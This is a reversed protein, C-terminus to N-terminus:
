RLSDPLALASASSGEIVWDEFSYFRKGGFDLCLEFGKEDCEWTRHPVTQSKNTQPFHLTTKDKGAEQWFFIKQSLEWHSRRMEVGYGEPDENDESIFALLDFMDRDDEPLHDIWIQNKISPTPAAGTGQVVLAMLFVAGVLAPLKLNKM